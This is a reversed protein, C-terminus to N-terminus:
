FKWVFLNLAVSPDMGGTKLKTDFDSLMALGNKLRANPVTNIALLAKQVVFPALKTVSAIEGAQRMGNDYAERVLLLRRLHWACMSLVPYVGDAGETEQNLLILARNKDGRSLTDLAEFIASERGGEILLTVDSVEITGSGKYAVLKTLESVVRATDSGVINVFMRLAERSFTVGSDLVALEKEVFKMLVAINKEDLKLFAEEKDVVKLFAKTLPDTKKIKGPQVFVLITQEEMNKEHTKLFEILAEQETDHLAYPHLFIVMKESSFLGGDCTSFARRVYESANQDEFDFTFIDAHTYKKAFSKQLAMRRRHLLFDDEGHLLIIM